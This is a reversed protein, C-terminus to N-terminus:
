VLEYAILPTKYMTHNYTYMIYYVYYLIIVRTLLTQMAARGKHNSNVSIAAMGQTKLRWRGGPPPPPLLSQM